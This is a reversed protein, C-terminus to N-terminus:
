YSTEDYRRDDYRPQEYRRDDYPRNPYRGGVHEDGVPYRPRAYREYAYHDDYRYDRPPYRGYPHHYRRSNDRRYPPYHPVHPHFRSPARRRRSIGRYEGPTPSRPRNRRAKQVSIKRGDLEYGNLADMAAESNAVDDMSIFGFGRSEGTHPDTVISCSVVKGYRSFVSELEEKKTKQSLLTIYLTNGPNMPEPSNIILRPLSIILM